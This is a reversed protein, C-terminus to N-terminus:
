IRRIFNKVFSLEIACFQFTLLLIYIYIYFSSSYCITGLHFFFLCKASSLVRVTARSRVYSHFYFLLWCMVQYRRRGDVVFETYIVDYDHFNCSLPCLICDYLYTIVVTLPYKTLICHARCVATLPPKFVCLVPIDLSTTITTIKMTTTSSSLPM